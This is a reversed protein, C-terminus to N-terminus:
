IIIECSPCARYGPVNQVSDITMAPCSALFTNIDKKSMCEINGCKDFGSGLWKKLCKWCFDAKQCRACKVRDNMQTPPKIIFTSCHPCEKGDLFQSFYNAALGDEFKKNEESTLVGVKRCLKYDWETKCPSKDTKFGPCVIKYMNNDLLNQLFMTMSDRAIVHGCKMKANAVGPDGMGLIDEEYSIVIGPVDSLDTKTQVITLTSAKNPILNKLCQNEDSFIVSGCQLVMQTRELLRKNAYILQKLGKVTINLEVDLKIEEGNELKVLIEIGGRVRM